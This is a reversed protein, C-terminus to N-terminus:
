AGTNPPFFGHDKLWKQNGTIQAEIEGAVEAASKSGDMLSLLMKALAVALEITQPTIDPM